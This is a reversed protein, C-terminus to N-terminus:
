VRLMSRCHEDFRISDSSCNWSACLAATSAAMDAKSALRLIPEDSRLECNLSDSLESILSDCVKKACTLGGPARAERRRARSVRLPDRPTAEPVSGSGTRNWM